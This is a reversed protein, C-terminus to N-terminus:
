GVPPTSHAHDLHWVLSDVPPCWELIREVWSRKFTVASGHLGAGTHRAANRASRWILPCIPANGGDSLAFLHMGEMQSPLYTCKRWRLPCIPANGGDSIESANETGISSLASLFHAKVFWTGWTRWFNLNSWVFLIRRHQLVSRSIQESTPTQFRKNADSRFWALIGLGSKLLSDLTFDKQALVGSGVQTPLVGSGVQTPYSSLLIHRLQMLHMRTSAVSIKPFIGLHSSKPPDTREKKLDNRLWTVGVRHLESLGLWNTLDDNNDDTPVTNVGDLSAFFPCATLVDPPPSSPAIPSFLPHSSSPASTLVDPPAFFPCNALDRM